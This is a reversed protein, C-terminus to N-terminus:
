DENSNSSKAESEKKCIVDFIKTENTVASATDPYSGEAGYNWCSVNDETFALYANGVETLGLKDFATPMDGNIDLKSKVNSGTSANSGDEAYGEEGSAYFITIKNQCSAQMDCIQSYQQYSKIVQNATARWAGIRAEMIVENVTPIAILAIIGLILIVALLEILTFGKKNM